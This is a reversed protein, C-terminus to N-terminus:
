ADQTGELACGNIRWNGDIEIMEYRAIVTGSEGEILVRQILRGDSRDVNLFRHSRSRFVQPYGRQVMRMFTQADKFLTQIKPSAVAFAAAEDDHNMADLQRTIVDHIRAEDPSQALAIPSWALLVVLGIVRAYDLM